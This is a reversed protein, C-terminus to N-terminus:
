VLLKISYVPQLYPNTVDMLQNQLLSLAFIIARSLRCNWRGVCRIGHSSHFSDLKMETPPVSCFNTWEEAFRSTAFHANTDVM